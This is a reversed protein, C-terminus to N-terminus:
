SIEEFFFGTKEFMKQNGLINRRFFIRKKKGFMKQNGLINRRFFIRDKKFMKQNGLVQKKSCKKSKENYPLQSPRTAHFISRCDMLWELVLCVWNQSFM